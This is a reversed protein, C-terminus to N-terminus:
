AQRHEWNSETESRPTDPEARWIRDEEFKGLAVAMERMHSGLCGFAVPQAALQGDDAERIVPLTRAPDWMCNMGVIDAGADRLRRASPSDAM